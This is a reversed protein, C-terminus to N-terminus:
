IKDGFLLPFLEKMTLYEGKYGEEELSTIIENVDGLPTIIVCDKSDCQKVISIDKEIGIGFINTKNSYKDIIYNVKIIHNKNNTIVSLISLGVSGIGYVIVSNFGRSIIEELWDFSSHIETVLNNKQRELRLQRVIRLEEQKSHTGGGWDHVIPNQFVPDEMVKLFENYFPHGVARMDTFWQPIETKDFWPEYPRLRIYDPNYELCQKVFEPLQRFNSEQYVTALEFYKIKGEKRLESILQLNSKINEVPLSTGSLYQYIREEFSMVTVHVSINYKSLFEIKDWNNKNFLSGNTEISISCKDAKELPKWKKILDIIHTPAFFEGLGNAGIHKVHPLVDVLKEEINKYAEDLNHCRNKIMDEHVFCSTCKYNCVNEYALYISEPWECNDDYEIEHKEPENMALYPCADIDCESYDHNKLLNRLRNAEAGHYIDYFNDNELSGIVGGGKLWGCLRVTGHFDTIQVFNAIRDCIKM